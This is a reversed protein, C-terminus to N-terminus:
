GLVVRLAAMLEAQPLADSEAGDLRRIDRRLASLYINLMVAFDQLSVDLNLPHVAKDNELWDFMAETLAAQGLVDEAAYDHSGQEVRGAQGVEWSWMSWHVYGQSGYVGIRKHVHTRPDDALVKPSNAGCRLLATIGESYDLTALPADPAFHQRPNPQL